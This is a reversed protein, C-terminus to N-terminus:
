KVMPMEYVEAKGNNVSVLLYKKGNFNIIDM